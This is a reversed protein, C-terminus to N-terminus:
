HSLIKTKRVFYGKKRFDTSARNVLDENKTLAFVTSGSGSMLAADFGYEVLSDKLDKIQPVIEFSSEELSNGINEIVQHYDNNQLAQKLININPHILTEFNINEFAKKTSVGQHPKALFVWFDTNIDFFDMEEGIGTVTAPKNFLCFPVDAGVKKAVEIMKEKSMNLKLLKNIIIITAAADASGGALGGQSPIHKTLKIAFNDEFGYEERLCNLAKIMTNKQNVPLYSVNSTFSMNSSVNIEVIDYFDIPVMVMNLEHYGDERKRVVDLGLNIKAYARAKM